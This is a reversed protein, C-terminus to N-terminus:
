AFCDHEECLVLNEEKASLYDLPVGKEDTMYWPNEYVSHGNAIWAELELIEEPTVSKELIYKQLDKKLVDLQEKIVMM